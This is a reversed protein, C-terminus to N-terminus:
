FDGSRLSDITADTSQKKTLQDIVEDRYAKQKKLTSNDIETKYQKRAQRLLYLFIFIVAGGIGLGIAIELM